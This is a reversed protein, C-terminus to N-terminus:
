LDLEFDLEDNNDLEMLEIELWHVLEMDEDCLDLLSDYNLYGYELGQETANQLLEEKTM